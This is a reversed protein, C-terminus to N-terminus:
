VTITYKCSMEPWMSRLKGNLCVISHDALGLKGIVIALVTGAAFSDWGCVHVGSGTGVM